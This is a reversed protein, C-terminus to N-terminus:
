NLQPPHREYWELRWGAEVLSAEVEGHRLIAPMVDAFQEVRQHVRTGVFATRLEYVSHTADLSLECMLQRDNKTYIWRLTPTHSDVVV